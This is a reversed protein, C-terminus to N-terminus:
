LDYIRGHAPDFGAVITGERGFSSKGQILHIRDDPVDFGYHRGWRGPRWLYTVSKAREGWAGCWAIDAKGPGPQTGAIAEMWEKHSNKAFWARGRASVEAKVQSLAVCAGGIPKGDRGVPGANKAWRQAGRALERLTTELGDRGAPVLQLYDLVVLEADSGAMIELMEDASSLDDYYNILESWAAQDAQAKVKNVQAQTVKGKLSTLEMGSLNALTRLATERAPDELDFVDVRHGARASAEIISKKVFSKGEGSDGPILHILQRGLGGNRDWGGIGTPLGKPPPEGRAVRGLEDVTNDLVKRYTVPKM